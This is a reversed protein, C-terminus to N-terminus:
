SANFQVVNGEPNEFLLEQRPDQDFVYAHGEADRGLYVRSSHSDIPSLKSAATTTVDIVRREPDPKFKFRLTIERVATASTSKDNINAAVREIEMEFLQLAAGRAISGLNIPTLKPKAM